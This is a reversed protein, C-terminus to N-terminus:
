QIYKASGSVDRSTHASWSGIETQTYARYGQPYSNSVSWPASALYNTCDVCTIGLIFPNNPTVTGAPFTFTYYNDTTLQAATVTNTSYAIVASASATSLTSGPANWLTGKLTGIGNGAKLYLTVSDVQKGFRASDTVVQGYYTLQTAGIGSSTGSSSGWTDTIYTVQAPPTTTGGTGSDPPPTTTETTTGASGQNSSVEFVTIQADSTSTFKAEGVQQMTISKSLVTPDIAPTTPNDDKFKVNLNAGAHVTVSHEGYAYQGGWKTQLDTVPIAVEGASNIDLVIPDPPAGTGSKAITYTKFDQGDVKINMTGTISWADVPVGATGIKGKVQVVMSSTDVTQGAQNVVTFAPAGFRFGGMVDASPMAISAMGNNQRFAISASLASHEPEADANNYGSGLYVLAFAVVAALAVGMYKKQRSDKM